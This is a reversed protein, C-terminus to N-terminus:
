SKGDGTRESVSGTDGNGDGEARPVGAEAGRREGKLRGPITRGTKM